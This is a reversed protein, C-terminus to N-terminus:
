VLQMRRYHELLQKAEPTWDLMALAASAAASNDVIKVGLKDFASWVRRCQTLWAFKLDDPLVTAGAPMQSPYGPDGSELTEFFFGGTYTFRLQMYYRGADDFDDIYVMGSQYGIQRIIPADQTQWTSDSQDELIEVNTVTEVPSRPLSFSARDAMCIVQDGVVRAFRRDCFGEMQGAVGRGIDQIVQDFRAETTGPAIGLLHTKLLFLNGLGVNM